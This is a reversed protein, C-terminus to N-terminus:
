VKVKEPSPKIAKQGSKVIAMKTKLKLFPKEFYNYSTISVGFTLGISLPYVLLNFLLNDSINLHMLLSIALSICVTHYMYIGYSVNGMYNYFANEMKLFYSTNCSLNIIFLVYVMAELVPFGPFHLPNFLLAITMIFSLIGTAPHMVFSLISHRNFLVYAGIAGVAMQEILLLDWFQKGMKLIFVTQENLGDTLLLGSLCFTITLKFFIFIILAKLLHKRCLWIFWPWILYFQEEVGISWAQNLGPIQHSADMLRMVNPLIGLYLPLKLGMRDFAHENVEFGIIYPLLCTALFVIFFYLPWIRLIRRLYFKKFAVTQTQQMEVLLLYTILFGSLVFFISVANHGLRDILLSNGWINPLGFWSKYQEVHHLIVASAAFFRISNLGPFYIKKRNM